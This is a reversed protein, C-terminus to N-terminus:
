VSVKLKTFIYLRLKSGKMCQDSLHWEEDPDIQHAMFDALKCEMRNLPGKLSIGNPFFLEKGKDIICQYTSNRDMMVNLSGGGKNSRVQVYERRKEDFHQWGLQFRATTSKVKSKTSYKSSPRTAGQM